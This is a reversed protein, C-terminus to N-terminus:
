SNTDYLSILDALEKAYQEIQLAVDGCSRCIDSQLYETLDHIKVKLDLIQEKINNMNQPHDTKSTHKEPM